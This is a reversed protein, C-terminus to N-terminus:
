FSGSDNEGFSGLLKATHRTHAFKDFKSIAVPVEYVDQEADEFNRVGLVFTAGRRRLADRRTTGGFHALPLSKRNTQMSNGHFRTRNLAGLTVRRFLPLFLRYTADRLPYYVPSIENM